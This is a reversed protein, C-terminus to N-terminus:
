LPVWTHQDGTPCSYITSPISTDSKHFSPQISNWWGQIAIGFEATDVISPICEYNCVGGCSKSTWSAWEQPHTAM